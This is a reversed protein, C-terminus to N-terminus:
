EESENNSTVEVILTAGDIGIVTVATGAPINASDTTKARWVESGIKVSGISENTIPKLLKTSKGILANAGTEVFEGDGRYLYAVALPRLFFFALTSFLAFAFIQVTLSFDLAAAIGSGVAGVALSALWFGPIFVEAIILIIAIIIWLTWGHIDSFQSWLGM